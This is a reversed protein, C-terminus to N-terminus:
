NKDITNKNGLNSISPGAEASSKTWTVTNENGPVNIEDTANLAVKCHNGPIMVSKASGKVTAHNGSVVLKSCNGKLTVKLHNGFVEVNGHKACNISFSKHNGKLVRTEAHSTSAGIMLIATVLLITKM